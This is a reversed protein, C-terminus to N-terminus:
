NEKKSNKNPNEKVEEWSKVNRIDDLTFGANKFAEDVTEGEIITPKNIYWYIIFRKM